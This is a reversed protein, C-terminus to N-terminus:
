PSAAWFAPPSTTSAVPRSRSDVGEVGLAAHDVRAGPEPELRQDREREGVAPEDGDGGAGAVDREAARERGVHVALVVVDVAGEGAM